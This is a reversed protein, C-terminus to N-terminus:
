PRVEATSAVVPPVDGAAAGRVDPRAGVGPVLEERLAFAFLEIEDVTTVETACVLLGDALSVSEAGRVLTPRRDAIWMLGAIGMLM